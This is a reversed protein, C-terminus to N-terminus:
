AEALELLNDRSAKRTGAEIERIMACLPDNVPVPIGHEEARGAVHGNPYWVELPRGRCRSYAYGEHRDDGNEISKNRM